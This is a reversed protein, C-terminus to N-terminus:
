AMVGSANASVESLTNFTEVPDDTTTSTDTEGTDTDGSDTVGSDTTGTDATDASSTDTLSKEEQTCALGFLTVTLLGVPYRFRQFSKM